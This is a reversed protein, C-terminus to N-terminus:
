KRKKAFRENFYSVATDGFRDILKNVVGDMVHHHFGKKDTLPFYTYRYGGVGTEVNRGVLNKKHLRDLIVAVSTLAVKRRKKLITYIDRVQMQEHQWLLELSASELPSLNPLTQKGM